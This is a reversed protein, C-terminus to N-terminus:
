EIPVQFLASLFTSSYHLSRQQRHAIEDLNLLIRDFFHDYYLDAKVISCTCTAFIFRVDLFLSKADARSSDM